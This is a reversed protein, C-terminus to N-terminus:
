NTITFLPKWQNEFSSKQTFKFIMNYLYKFICVIFASDFSKIIIAMKYPKDNDLPVYMRGYLNKVNM